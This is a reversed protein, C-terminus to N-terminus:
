NRERTIYNFIVTILMGMMFIFVSISSGAGWRFGIFARLYMMTAPVHTSDVPGGNTLIWVYDFNKLAGSVGLIVCVRIIPALGPLAIHFFSQIANAGDIESAEFLEGSIGQIGALLIVFIMGLQQWIAVAIVAYFATAPDA